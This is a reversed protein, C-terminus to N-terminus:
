RCAPNGAEAYGLFAISTPAVRLADGNDGAPLPPLEDGAGLTLDKGNLRASKAQPESASLTYSAARMTSTVAYARQRDANV